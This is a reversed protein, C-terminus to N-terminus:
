RYIGPSQHYPFLLAEQILVTNTADPLDQSHGDVWGAIGAPNPPIRDQFDTSYVHAALTLQRLKSVCNARTARDKARVLAPLLLAALIAIIAIVVLLEILTFATALSGARSASRKVQCNM